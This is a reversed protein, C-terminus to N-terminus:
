LTIRIGLRLEPIATEHCASRLQENITPREANASFMFFLSFIEQCSVQLLVELQGRTLTDKAPQQFVGMHQTERM